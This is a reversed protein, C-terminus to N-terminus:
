EKSAKDQMKVVGQRMRFSSDNKARTKLETPDCTETAGQIQFVEGGFFKRPDKKIQDYRNRVLRFCYSERPALGATEADTISLGPEEYVVIKFTLVGGKTRFELDQISRDETTYSRAESEGPLKWGEFKAFIPQSPDYKGTEDKPFRFRVM